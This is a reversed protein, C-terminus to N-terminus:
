TQKTFLQHCCLVNSHVACHPSDHGHHHGGPHDQDALLHLLCHPVPSASDLDSDQVGSLDEQAPQGGPGAVTQCGWIWVTGVAPVNWEPTHPCRFMLITTSLYHWCVFAQFKGFDPVYLYKMLLFFAEICAYFSTFFMNLYLLIEFTLQRDMISHKQSTTSEKQWSNWSTKFFVAERRSSM